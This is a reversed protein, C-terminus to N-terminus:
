QNEYKSYRSYNSNIYNNWDQVLQAYPLPLPTKSSYISDIVAQEGYRNVLYQVFSSGAIYSQHPDTYSRSYVAINKLEKYDIAMDIPRDITSLYEYVYKTNKSNPANNYDYNLFSIGYYDYRYSFYRAFGETEWSEMTLQPRTLAHIYEHMLSDINKVYIKHTVSQYFSYQSMSQSNSFIIKLETESNDLNLLARYQEMQRLNIEFFMKTDSYNKHLFNDYVLPNHQINLDSWGDQMYLVADDSLVAYDFQKGGYGYRIVSPAYDLGISKYYVALEKKLSEMGTASCSNSLLEQIGHEGNTSAYSLAFGNALSKAKAIDQETAFARNFCLLNLDCVDITDLFIDDRERSDKCKGM